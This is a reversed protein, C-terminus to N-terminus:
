IVIRRKINMKEKKRNKINLAKIIIQDQKEKSTTEFTCYYFFISRYVPLLIYSKNTIKM